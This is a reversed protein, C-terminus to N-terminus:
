ALQSNVELHAAPAEVKQGTGFVILLACALGLVAFALKRLPSSPYTRKMM